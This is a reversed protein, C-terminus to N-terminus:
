SSFLAAKTVSNFAFGPPSLEPATMLILRRSMSAAEVDIANAELEARLVNL